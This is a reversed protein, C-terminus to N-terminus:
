AKPGDTGTRMLSAMTSLRASVAQRQFLCNRHDGLKLLHADIGHLGAAPEGDLRSVALRFDRRFRVEKLQRPGGLCRGVKRHNEHTAHTRSLLHLGDEGRAVSVEHGQAAQQDTLRVEGPAQLEADM